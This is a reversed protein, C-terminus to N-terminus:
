ETREILQINLDTVGSIGNVEGMNTYQWFEFKYPTQPLLEYDAYWIPYDSLHELDFEYAEWLMNSYIMPQYGAEEITKCFVETNRTFQEGSVNDTRAEADLISEPDYVVPLQLQQNKINELVVEAEERAEEKNIAQSFFYVGVDLGANQANQINNLYEEDVCLRGETGYGRYGLRIFAFDYGSAKVQEWDIYGQHESVDVGLRYTYREDGEYLLTYGNHQFRDLDYSHKQINPNIEVQYSQGFVDVFDLIEPETDMIMEEKKAEEMGEKGIIEPQKDVPETEEIIHSNACGCLLVILCFSLKKFRWIIRNM